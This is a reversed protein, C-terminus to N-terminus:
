QATEAFDTAPKHANDSTSTEMLTVMALLMWAQSWRMYSIRNTHSRLIRYYFFGRDDSM